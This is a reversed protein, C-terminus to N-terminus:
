KLLMGQIFKEWLWEARERFKKFRRFRKEFFVWDEDNKRDKGNTELVTETDNILSRAMEMRQGIADLLVRRVIRGLEDAAEYYDKRDGKIWLRRLAGWQELQRVAMSAAGKSIGLAETLDDLSKPDRSFYLYAFIQGIVRGAGFSQTARGAAEIYREQMHQLEQDM